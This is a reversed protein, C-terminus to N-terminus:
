QLEVHTFYMGCCAVVSEAANHLIDLSKIRACCVPMM